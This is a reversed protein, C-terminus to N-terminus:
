AVEEIQKETSEIMNLIGMYTDYKQKYAIRFKDQMDRMNALTEEKDKNLSELMEQLRKREQNRLTEQRAIKALKAKEARARFSANTREADQHGLHYYVTATCCGIMRAIEKHSFGQDRLIEMRRHKHAKDVFNGRELYDYDRIDKMMQKFEPTGPKIYGLQKARERIGEVTQMSINCPNKCMAKRVTSEGIGLTESVDRLTLRKMM